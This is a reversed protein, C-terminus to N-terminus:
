GQQAHAGFFEENDSKTQALLSSLPVRIPRASLASNACRPFVRDIRMGHNSLRRSREPLDKVGTTLAGAAHPAIRELV